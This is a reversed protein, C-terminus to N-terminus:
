LDYLWYEEIFNFNLLAQSGDYYNIEIYTMPDISDM